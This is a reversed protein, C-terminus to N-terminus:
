TSETYHRVADLGSLAEYSTPFPLDPIDEWDSQEEVHAKAHKELVAAVIETM